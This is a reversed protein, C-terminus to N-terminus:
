HYLFFFVIICIKTLMRTILFNENERLLFKSHRALKSNTVYFFINEINTFDVYFSCIYIEIDYNLFRSSVFLFMDLFNVIM